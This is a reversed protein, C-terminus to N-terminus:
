AHVFHESRNIKDDGSIRSMLKTTPKSQSLYLQEECSKKYPEAVEIVLFGICKKAKRLDHTFHAVTENLM